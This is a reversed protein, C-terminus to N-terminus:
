RPKLTGLLLFVPKKICPVPPPNKCGQQHDNLFTIAKCFLSGLTIALAGRSKGGLEFQQDISQQQTPCGLSQGSDICPSSASCSSKRSSWSCSSRWSARSFSFIRDLRSWCRRVDRSTKSTVHRGYSCACVNCQSVLFLYEDLEAPETARTKSPKPLAPSRM